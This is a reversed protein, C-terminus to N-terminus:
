GGRQVELLVSAMMNNQLYRCTVRGYGGQGWAPGWSNKFIFVTDEIRGSSNQYGVLTVAHGVGPLPLQGDLYGGRITRFSPWRMGIVVPFGYDLAQIVNEIRATQNDGPLEHVFVRQHTRAEDILEPSPEPIDNMRRYGADPMEAESVVGYARLALVVDEISFGEDADESVDPQGSSDQGTTTGVRNLTKRTAWILYEESFKEAQGTLEANQYELASVIAFVACSPRRGQDKVNLGLNFFRPRLDIDTKIEPKQGLHLLLEEIRSDSAAARARRNAEQQLRKETQENARELAEDAAEAANPNYGFRARLEPSLDRLAISAMGGSYLIIITRANVSLVRAHDYTKAGVQLTEFMAGAGLPASAAAPDKAFSAPALLLGIGWLCSLLPALMAPRLRRRMKAAVALM